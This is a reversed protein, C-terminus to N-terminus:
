RSGMGLTPGFVANFNILSNPLRSFTTSWISLSVLFFYVIGSSQGYLSARSNNKSGSTRSAFSGAHSNLHSDGSTSPSTSKRTLSFPKLSSRTLFAAARSCFFRFDDSCDRNSPKKLGIGLVSSSFAFRLRLCSSFTSWCFFFFFSSVLAFFSALARGRPAAQFLFVVVYDFLWLYKWNAFCSIEWYILCSAVRKGEKETQEQIFKVQIPMAAPTQPKM